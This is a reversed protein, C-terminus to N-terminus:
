SESREALWQRAYEQEVDFNSRLMQAVFPELRSGVV